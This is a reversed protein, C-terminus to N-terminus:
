TPETAIGLADLDRAAERRASDILQGCVGFLGSPLPNPTKWRQKLIVILLRDAASFKRTGTGGARHKAFPVVTPHEVLFQRYRDPLDRWGPESM